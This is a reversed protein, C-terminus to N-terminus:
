LLFFFFCLDHVFIGCFIIELEVDCAIALLKIRKCGKAISPAQKM